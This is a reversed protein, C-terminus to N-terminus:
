ATDMLCICQCCSYVATCRVCHLGLACITCSVCGRILAFSVSAMLICLLWYSSQLWAEKGKAIAGTGHRYSLRNRLYPHTQPGGTVNICLKQTKKDRPWGRMKLCGSLECNPFYVRNLHSSAAEECHPTICEAYMLIKLCFGIQVTYYICLEAM